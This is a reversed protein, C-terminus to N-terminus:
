HQICPKAWRVWCKLGDEFSGWLTPIRCLLFSLILSPQCKSFIVCGTLTSAALSTKGSQLRQVM